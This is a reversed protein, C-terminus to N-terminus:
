WLPLLAMASSPGDKRALKTKEWGSEVLSPPSRWRLLMGHKPICDGANPMWWIVWSKSICIWPHRLGEVSNGKLELTPISSVGDM